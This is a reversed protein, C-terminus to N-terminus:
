GVVIQVARHGAFFEIELSALSHSLTPVTCLAPLLRGVVLRRHHQCPRFLRWPRLRMLSAVRFDRVLATVLHQFSSGQVFSVACAM